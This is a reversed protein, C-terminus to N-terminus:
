KNQKCYINKISTVQSILGLWVDTTEIAIRLFFSDGERKTILLQWVSFLSTQVM